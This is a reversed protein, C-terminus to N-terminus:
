QVQEKSLLNELRKRENVLQYPIPHRKGMNEGLAELISLVKKGQDRKIYAFWLIMWMIWLILFIVILITAVQFKRDVYVVRVSQDNEILFISVLAGM